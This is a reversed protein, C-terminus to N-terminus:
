HGNAVRNSRGAFISNVPRKKSGLRSCAILTVSFLSSGDRRTLTRTFNDQTMCGLILGILSRALPNDTVTM